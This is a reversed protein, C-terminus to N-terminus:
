CSLEWGSVAQATLEALLCFVLTASCTLSWVAHLGSSAVPSHPAHVNPPVCFFGPAGNASTGGSPMGCMAVLFVAVGAVNQTLLQDALWANQAAWCPPAGSCLRGLRLLRGNAVSCTRKRVCGNFGIQGLACVKVAWLWNHAPAHAVHFCVCCVWEKAVVCEDWVQVQVQLCVHVRVVRKCANSLFVHLKRCPTHNVIAPRQAYTAAATCVMSALCCGPTAAPQCARSHLTCAHVGAFSGAAQSCGLCGNCTASGRDVSGVHRCQM